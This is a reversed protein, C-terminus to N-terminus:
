VDYFNESFLKVIRREKKITLSTNGGNWDYLLAIGDVGSYEDTAGSEM